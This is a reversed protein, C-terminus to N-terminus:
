NYWPTLSQISQARGVKRSLVEKTSKGKLEGVKEAASKIEEM